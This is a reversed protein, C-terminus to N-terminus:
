GPCASRTPRPPRRWRTPWRRCPSGAAAPSPRGPPGAPSRRRRRGRGARRRGRDRHLFARRSVQRRLVRAAGAAARRRGSARWSSCCSWRASAWPSRSATAVVVDVISTRPDHAAAVVGVVGFAAFGARAVWRRRSGAIGLTAAVVACVVLVTSVLFTKDHHGLRQIGFHVLTGPSWDIVAQGVAGVLSPVGTAIGSACEALGLALGGGALGALGAAWRQPRTVEEPIQVGVRDSSAITSTRMASIM